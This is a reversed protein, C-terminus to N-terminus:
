GEGLARRVKGNPVTWVGPGRGTVSLAVGKGAQVCAAVWVETLGGEDWEMDPTQETGESGWVALGRSWARQGGPLCGGGNWARQGGSLWGM